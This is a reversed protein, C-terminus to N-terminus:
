GIRFSLRFGTRSWAIGTLPYAAVMLLAYQWEIANLLRDRDDVLYQLPLSTLGLGLLLGCLVLWARQIARPVATHGVLQSALLMQALVTGAFYLNIGYRRLWQYTQGEVGLFNVYLALFVAGLSGWCLMAVRRGRRQPVLARTWAAALWWYALLLPVYPLMIMRFLHNAWGHRAARSISTCGELYPLCAEVQGHRISLLYALHVAAFPLLAATWALAAPPWGRHGTGAQHALSQKIM